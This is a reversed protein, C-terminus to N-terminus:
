EGGFTCRVGQWVCHMPLLECWQEQLAHSQQPECVIVEAEQAPCKSLEERVSPAACCFVGLFSFNERLKKRLQRLTKSIDRVNESVLRLIESFRRM